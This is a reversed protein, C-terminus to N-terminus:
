FATATGKVAAAETLQLQQKMHSITALSCLLRIVM